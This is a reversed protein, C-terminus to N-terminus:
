SPSILSISTCVILNKFKNNRIKSLLYSFSTCCKKWTNSAISKWSHVVCVCERLCVCVCVCERDREKSDRACVVAVFKFFSSSHSVRDNTLVLKEYVKTLTAKGEHSSAIILWLSPSFNFTIKWLWCCISFNTSAWYFFFILKPYNSLKIQWTSYLRM